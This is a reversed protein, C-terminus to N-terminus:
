LGVYKAFEMYTKKIKPDGYTEGLYDAMEYHHKKPMHPSYYGMLEAIQKGGLTTQEMLMYCIYKREAPYLGRGPKPKPPKRTLDKRSVGFYEAGKTLILDIKEPQTM